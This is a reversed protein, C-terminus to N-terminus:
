FFLILSCPCTCSECEKWCGNQRFVREKTPEDLLTVNKIRVDDFVVDNRRWFMVNNISIDDSFVFHWWDVPTLIILAARNFTVLEGTNNSLSHLRNRYYLYPLHLYKYLVITSLIEPPYTLCIILLMFITSSIKNLFNKFYEGFFLHFWHFYARKGNFRKVSSFFYWELFVRRILSWQFISM